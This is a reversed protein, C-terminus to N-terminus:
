RKAGSTAPKSDFYYTMRKRPSLYDYVERPLQGPRLSKSIIIDPENELDLIIAEEKPIEPDYILVAPRLPKQSNVSVVMGPVDNSLRVCTGPPYVGLCRIFTSLAEHDFQARQHAFMLSLAEYPTLSNAPNTHNCHNDYANCVAVIRAAKSIQEGKLHHPYGTGDVMEHHQAVIQAVELTIGMNKIVDVGFLPHQQLFSKEAATLPETKLLIKDPIQVKGVDHFLSGVGLLRIQEAPLHMEKGLMMALVAVNLSHYYMEEGAVKDNMLHVMVEQNMLMSDVLQGVFANAEAYAERPRSFLNKTINKLTGAAKMFKKECDTIADRTANLREVRARKRELAPDPEASVAPAPPPAESTLPLPEVDSKSPFYRIKSLGLGKLTEIQQANKIKFANLSFPHDMWSLELKIFLGECIQHIDIYLSEDNM